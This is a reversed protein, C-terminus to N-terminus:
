SSFAKDIKNTKEFFCRKNSNFKTKNNKGKVKIENVEASLKAPEKKQNPAQITSKNQIKCHL